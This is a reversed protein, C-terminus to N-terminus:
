VIVPGQKLKERIREEASAMRVKLDDENKISEDLSNLGNEHSTTCAGHAQNIADRLAAALKEVLGPVPDPDSLLSRNQEIAKVEPQVEM